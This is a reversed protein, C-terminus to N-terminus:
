FLHKPFLNLNHKDYVFAVRKLCTPRVQYCLIGSLLYYPRSKLGLILNLMMVKNSLVFNHYCIDLIGIGVFKM